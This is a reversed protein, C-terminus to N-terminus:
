PKAKRPSLTAREIRYNKGYKEYVDPGLWDHILKQRSEKRTRAVTWPGAFGSSDVAVWVDIERWTKPKKSM